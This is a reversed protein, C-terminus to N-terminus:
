IHGIAKSYSQIADDYKQEKFSKNGEEKIKEAEQEKSM